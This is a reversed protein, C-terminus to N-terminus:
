EETTKPKRKKQVPAPDHAPAPAEMARKEAAIQPCGVWKADLQCMNRNPCPKGYPCMARYVERISKRDPETALNCLVAQAETDLYAHNCAYRYQKM